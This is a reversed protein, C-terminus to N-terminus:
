TGRETWNGVIEPREDVGRGHRRLLGPWNGDAKRLNGPVDHHWLDWAKQNHQLVLRGDLIEWYEPGIPSLKNISAAYGCWGGFQPEYKAPDADFRAKNEPNAFRYTGGRYESVFRADGLVPAAGAPLTFYAVPDYGQLALGSADVNTLIREGAPAPTADSAAVDANRTCGTLGAVMAANMVGIMLWTRM